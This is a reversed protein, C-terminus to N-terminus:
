FPNNWNIIRINCKSHRMYIGNIKVNFTLINYVKPTSIKAPVNKERIERKKAM